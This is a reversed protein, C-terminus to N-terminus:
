TSWSILNHGLYIEYGGVSREDDSCGVYDVDLFAQLNDVSSMVLLM